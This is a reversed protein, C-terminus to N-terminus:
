NENWTYRESIKPPGRPPLNEERLSETRNGRMTNGRLREEFEGVGQFRRGPKKLRLTKTESLSACPLFRPTRQASEPLTQMHILVRSLTRSTLVKACFVVNRFIQEGTQPAAFPDETEHTAFNCEMMAFNMGFANRPTVSFFGFCNKM